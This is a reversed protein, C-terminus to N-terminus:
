PTNLYRHVLIAPSGGIRTELRSKSTDIKSEPYLLKYVQSFNHPSDIKFELERGGFSLTVNEFPSLDLVLDSDGFKLKQSSKYMAEFNPRFEVFIQQTFYLVSVIRLENFTDSDLIQSRDTSKETSIIWKVSNKDLKFKDANKEINAFDLQLQITWKLDQDFINIQQVLISGYQNPQVIHIQGSFTGEATIVKLVKRLKELNIEAHGSVTTTPKISVLNNLTAFSDSLVKNLIYNRLVPSFILSGGFVLVFSLILVQFFKKM